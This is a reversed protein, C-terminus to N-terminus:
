QELDPSALSKLESIEDHLKLDNVTGNVRLCAIYSNLLGQKLYYM